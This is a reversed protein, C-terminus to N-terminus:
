ERGMRNSMIQAVFPMSCRRVLGFWGHVSLDLPQVACELLRGHFSIVKVILILETSMEAVDTIGVIVCAAELWAVSQCRVFVIAFGPCGLWFPGDYTWKVQHRSPATGSVQDM